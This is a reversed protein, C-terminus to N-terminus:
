CFWRSCLADLRDVRITSGPKTVDTTVDDRLFKLLEIDWFSLWIYQSGLSYTIEQLAVTIKVECFDTYSHECRAFLFFRVLLSKNESRDRIISLETTTVNIWQLPLGVHILLPM